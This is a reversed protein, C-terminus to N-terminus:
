GPCDVPRTPRPWLYLSDTALNFHRCLWPNNSTFQVAWYSDRGCDMLMDPDQLGSVIADNSCNLRIEAHDDTQDGPGDHDHCDWDAAKPVCYGTNMMDPYDRTHGGTYYGCPHGDGSWFADCNHGDGHEDKEVAGISHYFEHAVHDADLVGLTDWDNWEFEARGEVFNHPNDVGPEAPSISPTQEDFRWAEDVSDTDCNSISGDFWFLFRQDTKYYGLETLHGQAENCDITLNGNVDESTPIGVKEIRPRVLAGFSVMRECAFRWHQKYTSHSDRLGNDAWTIEEHILNWYTEEPLASDYMDYAYINRVVHSATTDGACHAELGATSGHFAVAPTAPLFTAGTVLALLGILKRM